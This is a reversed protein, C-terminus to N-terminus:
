PNIGMKHLGMEDLGMEDLLISSHGMEDLIIKKFLSLKFLLVSTVLGKEYNKYKRRRRVPLGGAVLQM